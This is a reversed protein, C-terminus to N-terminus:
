GEHTKPDPGYQEDTTSCKATNAKNQTKQGTNDTDRVEGKTLPTQKHITSTLTEQSYCYCPLHRKLLSFKNGSGKTTSAIGM